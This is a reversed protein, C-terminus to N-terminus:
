EDDPMKLYYDIPLANKGIKICIKDNDMNTTGTVYAVNFSIIFSRIIPEIAVRKIYTDNINATLMSFIYDFNKNKLKEEFLLEFVVGLVKKCETKTIIQKDGAYIDFINETVDAIMKETIINKM